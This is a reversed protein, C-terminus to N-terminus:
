VRGYLAKGPHEFSLLRFKSPSQHHEHLLGLAHALQHLIMSEEAPTAYMTESDICGLNMTPEHSSLRKAQTGVFSWSTHSQRFSIRIDGRIPSQVFTINLYTEMEKM